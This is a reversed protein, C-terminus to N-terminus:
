GNEMEEVLQRASEDSPTRGTWIEMARIGQCATMSKGNFASLGEKRAAKPLKAETNSYNVDYVVASRKLQSLFGLDTYDDYGVQGLVSANIFYDTEKCCEYLNGDTLEHPRFNQGFRSCLQQAEEPYKNIVDVHRVRALGLNYAISLAVGGAGVMVVKKGEFRFGKLQLAKILGWGDTNYAILKKDKVLIVNTSGCKKSSEEIDDAFDLLRQKYPMTVNFGSLNEKAYIVTDYLQEPMVNFIDFSIEVGLARAFAGYVRPTVSNHIDKAILGLRYRM